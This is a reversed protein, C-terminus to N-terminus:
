VVTSQINACVFHVFARVTICSQESDLSLRKDSMGQPIHAFPASRTRTLRFNLASARATRPRPAGPPLNMM